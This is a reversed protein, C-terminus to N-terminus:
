PYLILGEKNITPFAGLHLDGAKANLKTTDIVDKYAMQMAIVVQTQYAENGGHMQSMPILFQHNKTGGPRFSIMVM